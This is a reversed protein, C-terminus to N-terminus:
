QVALLERYAAFVTAPDADMEIRGDHLLLARSCVEMIESEDHSAIFLIPSADLRRLIEAQAKEVFGVDGITFIEDLILIDPIQHLSLSFAFRAQLGASLRRMPDDARHSLEAFDLVQEVLQESYLDNRNSQILGLCVNSRLSLEPDLGRGLSLVPAIRGQVRRTGASPPYIGAILRLLSTKGVGNRGVIGIRDGPAADLDINHLLALEEPARADRRLLTQKLTKVAGTAPISVTCDRLRVSPGDLPRDVMGPLPLQRATGGTARVTEGILKANVFRCPPGGNAAITLWRQGGPEVPDALAIRTAGDNAPLSTEGEIEVTANGVGADELSLELISAASATRNTIPLRAQSAIFGDRDIGAISKPAALPHHLRLRKSLGAFATYNGIHHSLVGINTDLATSLGAHRDVLTFVEKLRRPAISATKTGTEWVVNSFPEDVFRFVKGAEYLRLWLDWDMVYHLDENVGGVAEVADRRVFCSPQSIINTRYITESIPEVAMHYGTSRGESDILVSHGYVIDTEPSAAFIEDVKRLTGPLLSDDANLWCLIDGSTTEWGDRIAAAQGADPRHVRLALDDDFRRVIQKIRDSGSADLLAINMDVQQAVLSRLAITLRTDERGVPVVVCFTNSSASM